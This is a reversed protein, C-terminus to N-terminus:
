RGHLKEAYISRGRVTRNPNTVSEPSIRFLGPEQSPRPLNAAALCLGAGFTAFGLTTPVGFQGSLVLPFITAFLILPLPNEDDLARLARLGITVVIVARLLLYAFGIFPGSEKIVRLWETEALLFAREGKLLGGAATTGLGIGHGMVPTDRVASFPESFGTLVRDILGTRVGGGGTMRYEHVIMGQRVDTRLQLLAFAVGILLAARVGKGFFKQNKICVFLTTALILTASTLVTRSGSVAIMIGLAPLVSFALIPKISWRRLQWSMLFAAVLGLYAALGGTFSFTGPPRIKGFGVELQAGETGGVGVNVWANPSAKFQIAVLFAMPIASILFWKGIKEVDTLNFVKPILFILPLHLFDTRLGFLTVLVNGHDAFLSAFASLVGLVLATYTFGNWPFVGQSLALGYMLIVIPDRVILLPNAYGPLFWKRLAGELLLLWFYVWILRRIGVHKEGEAEVKAPAAKQDPKPAPSIDRLDDTHPALKM